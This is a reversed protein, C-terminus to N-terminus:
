EREYASRLGDLDEPTDIDHVEVEARVLVHPLALLKRAALNAPSSPM